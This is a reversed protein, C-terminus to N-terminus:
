SLDYVIEENNYHQQNPYIEIYEREIMGRHKTHAKITWRQLGTCESVISILINMKPSLFRITLTNKKSLDQFSKETVERLLKSLKRTEIIGFENPCTDYKAQKIIRKFKKERKQNLDEIDNSHTVFEYKRKRWRHVLFPILIPIFIVLILETCDPTISVEVVDRSRYKYRYRQIMEKVTKM